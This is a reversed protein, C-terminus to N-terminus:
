LLHDSSGNCSHLGTCKSTCWAEPWQSGMYYLHFIVKTTKKGKKWIRNPSPIGKRKEEKDGIKKTAYFL